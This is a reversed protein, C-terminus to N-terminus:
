AALGKLAASAEGRWPRVSVHLIPIVHICIMTLKYLAYTM